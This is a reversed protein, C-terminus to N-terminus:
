ENHKPFIPDNAKLGRLKVSMSFTCRIGFNDYLTPQYSSTTVGRANDADLIRVVPGLWWHQQNIDTVDIETPLYSRTM